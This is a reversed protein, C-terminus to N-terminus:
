HRATKAATIFAAIRAPDKIGPAIEVGSSLDIATAGTIAIAAAVNDLTLGGSLIYPIQKVADLLRWDFTVGNGGPHAAGKPAKADFLITDVADRYDHARLADAATEVGIAKWVRAGFHQRIYATRAVDERGHLQLVDPKVCAMISALLADDGDVVLAVIEARGRARDALTAATAIDVNRPSKSFFVLGVMDAGADLAADMTEPTSLGCIKVRVPVDM